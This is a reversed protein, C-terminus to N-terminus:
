GEHSRREIVHGDPPDGIWKRARRLPSEAYWNKLRFFQKSPLVLTLLLAFQKFIYYIPPAKDIFYEDTAREMQFVEWRSGGELQLRLRETQLRLHALLPAEIEPPVGLARMKPPFSQLLCALSHYMRRVARESSNRLMFMNEGHLRYYFLAQDLVMVDAFWPALTFLWEDAEIVAGEPIPLIQELISKRYAVKSTGFFGAHRSFVAAEGPTRVNLRRSKRPLVSKELRSDADVM